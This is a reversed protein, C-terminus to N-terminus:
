DMVFSYVRETREAVYRWSYNSRVYQHIESCQINDFDKVLRDKKEEDFWEHWALGISNM